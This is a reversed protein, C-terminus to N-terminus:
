LKQMKEIAVELDYMEDDSLTLLYNESNATVQGLKKEGTYLCRLNEALVVMIAHYQPETLRVTKM